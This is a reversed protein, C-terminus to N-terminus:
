ATRVYRFYWVESSFDRYRDSIFVSFASNNDEFKAMTIVMGSHVDRMPSPYPM